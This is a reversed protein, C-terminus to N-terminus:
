NIASILTDKTSPRFGLDKEAESTDFDKSIFLTDFHFPLKVHPEITHKYIYFLLKLLPFPAYLVMKRKKAKDAFLRVLENYCIKEGALYYTKNKAKTNKLAATIADTANEVHLFHTNAQGKGFLLLVAPSKKIANAIKGVTRKDNKGYVADLRLIAYCIGSNKVIDEGERKTKGYGNDYDEDALVSSLYIVQKVNEKKCAEVVNKTGVVNVLEYQKRTGRMLAASHIVIDVGRTAELLRKNESIDGIITEYGKKKLEEAQREHRVLCRVRDIKSIKNLLHRGVFGTAGTLLIM